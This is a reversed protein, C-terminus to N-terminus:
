IEFIFLDDWTSTLVHLFQLRMYHQYLFFVTIGSQFLKATALSGMM